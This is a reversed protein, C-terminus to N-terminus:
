WICRCSCWVRQIQTVKAVCVCVCMSALTNGNISVHPRPLRLARGAAPHPGQQPHLPRSVAAAQTRQEVRQRRGGASLGAQRSVARDGVEPGGSSVGCIQGWQGDHM